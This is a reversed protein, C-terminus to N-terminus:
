DAEFEEEKEKYCVECMASVEPNVAYGSQIPDGCESCYIEKM